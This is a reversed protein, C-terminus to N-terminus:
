TVGTHNVRLDALGGDIHLIQGTVWSNSPDLLFEIMSAIDDPQGLRRLPHMALSAKEAAPNALLKSSLPTRVLGPAIANVRINKAAHSAAAARVLGDVGAKAAAIAEHNALGVQAATSSMLVISGGHAGLAKVASRLVFFASSLNISLTRWWEEDSVLHVPKLVISGVLHAVGRLPGKELTQAFVNEVQVSDTVDACLYDAGLEQALTRVRDETRSVLTLSVGKSALRRALASGIGGSGGFILVRETNQTM